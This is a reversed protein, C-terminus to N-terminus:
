RVKFQINEPLDTSPLSWYQGVERNNERNNKTTEACSPEVHVPM